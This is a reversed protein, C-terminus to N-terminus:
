SSITIRQRPRPRARLRLVIRHKRRAPRCKYEVRTRGNTRNADRRVEADTTHRTPSGSRRERADIEDVRTAIWSSDPIRYARIFAHIEPNKMLNLTKSQFADGDKNANTRKLVSCSIRLLFQSNRPIDTWFWRVDPYAIHWFPCIYTYNYVSLFTNIWKPSYNCLLIIITPFIM